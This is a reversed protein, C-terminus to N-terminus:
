QHIACTNTMLILEHRTLCIARCVTEESVNDRINRPVQNVNLSEKGHYQPNKVSNQELQITTFILIAIALRFRIDSLRLLEQTLEERTLNELKSRSLM